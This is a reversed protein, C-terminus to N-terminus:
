KMKNLCAHDKSAAYITDKFEFAQGNSDTKRQKCVYNQSMKAIYRQKVNLFVLYMMQECSEITTPLM